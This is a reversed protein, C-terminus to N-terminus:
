TLTQGTFSLMHHACNGVLYPAAEGVISANLCLPSGDNNYYFLLSNIIKM